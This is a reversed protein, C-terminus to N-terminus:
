KSRPPCCRAVAAEVTQVLKRLRTVVQEGELTVFRHRGEKEVAVLGVDHMLKIHRSVVSRDQAVQDALTNIDSRGHELLLKILELRAPEALARLLASDLAVMLDGLAKDSSRTVIRVYTCVFAGIDLSPPTMRKTAVQAPELLLLSPSWVGGCVLLAAWATLPGGSM